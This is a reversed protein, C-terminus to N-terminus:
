AANPGRLAEAVGSPCHQSSSTPGPHKYDAVTQPWGTMHHEVFARGGHEIEFAGPPVIGFRTVLDDASAKLTRRLFVM